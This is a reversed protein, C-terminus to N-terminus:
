TAQEFDFLAVPDSTPEESGGPPEVTIGVATAGALDGRLLVAQDGAGKMLGAPVMRGAKQLWLQYTRGSPPAPMHRTVLAARGVARSTYVTASGGGPLDVTVHRADRAQIVRDAALQTTSSDDQAQQWVVVGGGVLVVAAAAAALPRAWRRRREALVTVPPLPRVTSIEALVRDRLAAPPEAEVSSGLMATAERLSAVESQCAACSGLHAEFRAREDPDLADVAYAGSLAHIEHANTM